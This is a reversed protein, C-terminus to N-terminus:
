VADVTFFVNGLNNLSIDNIGYLRKERVLEMYVQAHAFAVVFLLMIYSFRM